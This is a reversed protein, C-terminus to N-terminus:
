SSTRQITRALRLHLAHGGGVCVVHAVLREGLLALDGLLDLIKHRAPEDPFRPPSLFRGDKLVLTNDLGSGRALGKEWLAEADELYGWTRAPAIESIFREPTVVLDYACAERGRLPVVYTVRLCVSPFAAALAGGEQIWVPTALRLEPVEGRLERTGAEQLLEVFPLASGDGAPVEPGEVVVQLATVGLTWAAALLHEVTLVSGVAVCHATHTVAELRCPTEEGGVLLRIGPTESPLLTLRTHEGTHIGPGSYVVPKAITRHRSM